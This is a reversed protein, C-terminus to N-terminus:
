LIKGCVEGGLVVVADQWEVALLEEHLRGRLQQLEVERCLILPLHSHCVGIISAFISGMYVPYGM